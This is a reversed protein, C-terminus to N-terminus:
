LRCVHMSYKVHCNWTRSEKNHIWSDCLARWTLLNLLFRRKGDNRRSWRALSINPMQIISCSRLVPLYQALLFRKNLIMFCIATMRRASPFPLVLKAPAVPEVLGIRTIQLYHIFLSRFLYIFQLQDDTLFSKTKM